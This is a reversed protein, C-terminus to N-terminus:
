RENREQRNNYIVFLLAFVGVILLSIVGIASAYNLRFFRFATLYTYVPVIMTSNSPGGATMTYILDFSSFTWIIELLITTISVDRIGVLTINWFCQFSNAGDIRAAEYCTSDISQLAALIVITIFPIAKWIAVVMVAGLAFKPSGLWDINTSTLGLKNLVFNIVGYQNSYMWKWTMAAAIGPVVWPILIVSRYFGRGRFSKNLILAIGSGIIYMFFVNISTWILSNRISAKFISDKILNIYHDLGVFTKFDVTGQTSLFFSSLVGRLLPYLLILAILLVGPSILIYAFLSRRYSANRYKKRNMSLGKKSKKYSLVLYFTQQFAM